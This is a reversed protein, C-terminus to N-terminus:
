SLIRPELRGGATLRLHSCGGSCLGVWQCGTCSPPNNDALDAFAKVRPHERVDGLEDTMINGPFLEPNTAPDVNRDMEGAVTDALAM